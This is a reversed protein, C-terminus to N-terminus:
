LYDRMAVFGNTSPLREPLDIKIYSTSLDVSHNLHRCNFYLEAGGSDGAVLSRDVILNDM